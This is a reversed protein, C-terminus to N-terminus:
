AIITIIKVNKISNMAKEMEPWETVVTIKEGNVLTGNRKLINTNTCFLPKEPVHNGFVSKQM